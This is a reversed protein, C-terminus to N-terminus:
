PPQQLDLKTLGWDSAPATYARHLLQACDRVRARQDSESDLGEAQTGGGCAAQDTPGEVFFGRADLGRLLVQDRRSESGSDVSSGPPSKNSDISQLESTLAQSFSHRNRLMHGATPIGTVSGRHYPHREVYISLGTTTHAASTVRSRQTETKDHEAGNWDVKVTKISRDVTELRESYVSTSSSGEERLSPPSGGSSADELESSLSEGKEDCPIQATAQPSSQSQDESIGFVDAAQGPNKDASTDTVAPSYPRTMPNAESIAGDEEPSHTISQPIREEAEFDALIPMFYRIHDLFTQLDSAVISNEADRSFAQSMSMVSHMRKLVKTPDEFALQSVLWNKTWSTTTRTSIISQRDSSWDDDKSPNARCVTSPALGQISVDDDASGKDNNNQFISQGDITRSSLDQMSFSLLTAQYHKYSRTVRESSSIASQNDESATITRAVSKLHSNNPEVNMIGAGERRLRCLSPSRRVAHEVDQHNGSLIGRVEEIKM